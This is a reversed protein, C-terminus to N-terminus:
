KFIIIKTNENLKEQIIQAKMNNLNLPSFSVIKSMNRNMNGKKKIKKLIM